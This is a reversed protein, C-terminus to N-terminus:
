REHRGASPRSMMSSTGAGDAGGESGNARDSHSTSSSDRARAEAMDERDADPAFMARRVSAM